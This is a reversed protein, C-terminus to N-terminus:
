QPGLHDWICKLWDWYSSYKSCKALISGEPAEKENMEDKISFLMKKYMCAECESKVVGNNMCTKLGTEFNSENVAGWCSNNELSNNVVHFGAGSISNSTFFGGILFGIGLAIVGVLILKMNSDM